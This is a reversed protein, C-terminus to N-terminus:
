TSSSTPTPIRRHQGESNGNGNEEVFISREEQFLHIQDAVDYPKGSEVFDGSYDSCHGSVNMAFDNMSQDNEFFTTSEHMSSVEFMEEAISKGIDVIARKMTPSTLFNQLSTGQEGAIQDDTFLNQTQNPPLQPQVASGSDQKILKQAM